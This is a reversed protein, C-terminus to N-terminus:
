NKIYPESEVIGYYKKYYKIADQYKAQDKKGYVEWVTKNYDEREPYKFNYKMDNVYQYADLDYALGEYM